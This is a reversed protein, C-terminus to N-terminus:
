PDRRALARNGGVILIALMVLIIVLSGRLTAASAVTGIVPPGILGGAYGMTSVAAIGQSAPIGPQSGAARFLTPVVAALGLGMMGFGVIAVAPIQVALALGLGLAALAAGGSVLRASGLMLSLRDGALRAVAMSGTFTTVALGAVGQSASMTSQLYLASWDTASGEAMLGFLALAGLLALPGTPLRLRGGGEAHRDPLMTFRLMVGGIAMVAASVAFEPFVPIGLAAVQTSVLAGAFAGISWSAHLRSMIPGTGAHEVAIGNANMSVDMTGQCIGFILLSLTLSAFNWSAGIFVVMVACGILTTSTMVHTGFRSGLWGGFTMTLVAGISAGLLAFGLGAADLDTQIKVAPIRAAWVGFSAGNLM